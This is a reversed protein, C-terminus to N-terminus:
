QPCPGTQSYLQDTAHVNQTMKTIALPNTKWDATGDIYMQAEYTKGAELFDLNINFTRPDENTIAGLYWDESNRDKRATIIYDGIESDVIVTKEWDCPVDEIFTLAKPNAEVNKPLDSVMQLPSYLVVYLALEKALTSQVRDHNPNNIKDTLLLNFTGPTYDM